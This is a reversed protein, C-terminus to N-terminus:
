GKGPHRLGHRHKAFPRERVPPPAPEELVGATMRMHQHGPAHAEDPAAVPTMSPAEDALSPMIADAIGEAARRLRARRRARLLARVGVVGVAASSVAVYRSRNGMLPRRTAEELCDRNAANGCLRLDREPPSRHASSLRPGSPGAALTAGVGDLEEQLWAVLRPLDGVLDADAVVTVTLTGAYSFVGFAVQVNGSTSNVPIIEDISAGLFALRSDPGRLNTV